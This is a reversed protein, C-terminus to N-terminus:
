MFVIEAELLNQVLFLTFYGEFHAKNIDNPKIVRTLKVYAHTNINRKEKATEEERKLTASFGLKVQEIAEEISTSDVSVIRKRDVTNISKDGNYHHIKIQATYEHQETSM